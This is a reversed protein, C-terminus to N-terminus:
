ECFDCVYLSKKDVGACEAHSWFNCFLCQVWSEGPKSNEYREQCVICECDKEVVEGLASDEDPNPVDEVDEGSNGAKFKSTGPKVRVKAQTQKSTGPEVKVKAQTQKSTGPKVKVEVVKKKSKGSQKVKKAESQNENEEEQIKHKATKNKLKQKEIFEALSNKYPSATVLTAANAKRGRNSQRVKKPPIPSIDEPNITVNAKVESPNDEEESETMLVRRKVTAMTLAPTPPPEIPEANDNTADNSPLFDAETFVGRDLPYIGTVRFGNVATSGITSRLFARGFLEAIDGQGLPRNNQRMFQRINESYHAKLSGMFTRDLPQLKHTTHSPLTVIAVHNERALELVDLNRTHSYHGDMILLVPSKETPVTREIFMKFWDTFLNTQVWGSPHARGITGPPSGILLSSTMNTRPYIMMPPLYTGGASMSCIITVLSGREASTISCIQRKGKSALVQPVKSPVVSLGTEDVNWIRDPPYNHKEFESELLDFFHGVREETFGNARAFSTGTPKRISIKDKHRDLFHDLWSRGAIDSVFKHSLNNKVALQYAMRRVDMRTLGYYKAEMIQLYEVLKKELEDTLIPKRGLKPVELNVYSVNPDLSLRRLTTKPVNYSKAAKKLGMEKERISKIALEMDEKRWSHRNKQSLSKKKRPM